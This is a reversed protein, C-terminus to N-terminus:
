FTRFRLKENAEKKPSIVTLSKEPRHKFVQNYVNGCYFKHKMFVPVLLTKNNRMDGTSLVVLPGYFSRSVNTNVAFSSGLGLM